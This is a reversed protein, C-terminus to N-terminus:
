YSIAYKNDPNLVVNVDGSLFIIPRVGCKQAGPHTTAAGTTQVTCIIGTPASWFSVDRTWWETPAESEYWRGIRYSDDAFYTIYSGSSSDQEVNFLEEKSLLSVKDNVLNTQTEIQVTQLIGQLESSFYLGPWLNNLRSRMYCSQWPTDPYYGGGEYSGDFSYQEWVYKCMLTTTNYKHHNHAIVIWEPSDVLAESDKVVVGLQLTSLKVMLVDIPTAAEYSRVHLIYILTDIIGPAFEKVSIIKYYQGSIEINDDLNPRGFTSEIIVQKDINKINVGDILNNSYPAVLAKIPIEINNYTTIKTNSDLAGDINQIYNVYGGYYRISDAVIKIYKNYNFSM